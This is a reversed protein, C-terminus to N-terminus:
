EAVNEVLEKAKQEYVSKESDSLADWRKKIAANRLGGGLATTSHGAHLKDMEEKIAKDNGDIWVQRATYEGLFTIVSRRISTLVDKKM